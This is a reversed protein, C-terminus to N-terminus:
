VNCLGLDKAVWDGYNFFCLYGIGCIFCLYNSVSSLYDLWSGFVYGSGLRRKGKPKTWSAVCM